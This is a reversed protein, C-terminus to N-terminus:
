VGTVNIESPVHFLQMRQICNNRGRIKGDLNTCHVRGFAVAYEQDSAIAMGFQGYDADSGYSSIGLPLRCKIISFATILKNRWILLWAGFDSHNNTRAAACEAHGSSMFGRIINNRVSSGLMLTDPRGFLWLAARRWFRPQDAANVSHANNGTFTTRNIIGRSNGVFFGGGETSRQGTVFTATWLFLRAFLNRGVNKDSSLARRSLTHNSFEQFSADHTIQYGVDASVASPSMLVFFRILLDHVRQFLESFLNQVVRYISQLRRSARRRHDYDVYWDRIHGTTVVNWTSSRNGNLLGAFWLFWSTLLGYRDNEDATRCSPSAQVPYNVGFINAARCGLPAAFSGSVTTKRTHPIWAILWLLIRVFPSRSKRSQAAQHEAIIQETLAFTKSRDGKVCVVARAMPLLRVRASPIHLLTFYRSNEITNNAM